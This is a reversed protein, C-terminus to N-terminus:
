ALIAKQILINSNSRLSLPGALLVKQVVTYETDWSLFKKKTGNALIWGHVRDKRMSM